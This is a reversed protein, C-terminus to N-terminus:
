FDNHSLKELFVVVVDVFCVVFVGNYLTRGKTKGVIFEQSDTDINTRSFLATKICEPVILGLSTLKVLFLWLCM